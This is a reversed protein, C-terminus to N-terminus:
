GDTKIWCAIDPWYETLTKNGMFLGIHGGPALKKIIRKKSTGLYKDANFVQEKTTIEDDRGALLYVPCTISKLSLRQGLGTFQGKAFQNEKFLKQIVELYYAGPLDIPNEYWREFYETRKIYNKNEIHNYLDIYKGLYQEEANMNKWGALMMKGPMLGNGADVMEQYFSLPLTHAIEKILGNGADTDIPAGAMVLSRVKQPYRATYMASMWGGQCLGVLNVFGGLKEVVLNIDALYKDIDFDKMVHTAAKWDTALVRQLGAALMTEVLSQGKEFDAITSSHGAYPADILVPPEVNTDGVLSFDRLRMTDMDAIVTNNTVWTPEPPAEMEEVIKLYRINDQFLKLGEEGLEIAAALPWLFPVTHEQKCTICNNNINEQTEAKSM